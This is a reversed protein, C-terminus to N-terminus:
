RLNLYKHTQPILRVDKIDKLFENQVAFLKKQTIEQETVPQLILTVDDQASSSSGGGRLTLLKKVLEIEDERLDQTFVVKVFFEKGKLIKIFKKHEEFPMPQGTSSELKIDMAVIDVYSIIEKLEDPLAGNTELYIKLKPFTKRAEPLFEKLFDSSLLPEGGTISISHHPTVNLKRIEEILEAISYFNQGHESDTDCYACALNCGSFRVFVQKRGLYVGEGQISSFIEIINASFNNM